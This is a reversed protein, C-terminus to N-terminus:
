WTRDQPSNNDSHVDRDCKKGNRLSFSFFFLGYDQKPLQFHYLAQLTSIAINYKIFCHLTPLKRIFYTQTAPIQKSLGSTAVPMPAHQTKSQLEFLSSRLKELKWTHLVIAHSLATGATVQRVADQLLIQVGIFLLMYWLNGWRRQCAWLTRRCPSRRNKYLGGVVDWKACLPQYYERQTSFAPSDTYLCRKKFSGTMQLPSHLSWLCCINFLLVEQARVVPLLSRPLLIWWATLFSCERGRGRSWDANM